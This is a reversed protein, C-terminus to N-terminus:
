ALLPSKAAAVRRAAVAPASSDPAITANPSISTALPIVSPMQSARIPQNM